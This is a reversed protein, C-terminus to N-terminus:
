GGIIVFGSGGDGAASDTTNVMNTHGTVVLGAALATGRPDIFCREENAALLEMAAVGDAAGTDDTADDMLKICADTANGNAGTTGNKKVYAGYLTGVGTGLVTGGAAVSEVGTFPFFQLQTLRKDQTLSELLTKFANQIAPHANKLAIAVRQKVYNSNELAFAAM